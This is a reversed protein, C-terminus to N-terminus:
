TLVGLRNFANMVEQEINGAGGTTNITVNINGFNRNSTNVNSITQLHNTDLKDRFSNRLNDLTSNDPNVVKTMEAEVHFANKRVGEAIGKPLWQGIEDEYLRSPSRILGAAKGAIQGALVVRGVAASVLFLGDIVGKAIGASLNFGISHFDGETKARTEADTVVNGVADVVWPKGENVGDKARSMNDRFATNFKERSDLVKKESDTMTTGISNKIDTGGTDAEKTMDTMGIDTNKVMSDFVAKQEPPLTELFTAWKDWDEQNIGMKAREAEIKKRLTEDGDLYARHGAETLADYKAMTDANHKGTATAYDNLGQKYIGMQENTATTLIDKKQLEFEEQTLIGADLSKQLADLKLGGAAAIQTIEEEDATERLAKYDLFAKSDFALKENKFSELMFREKAQSDTLQKDAIRRMALLHAQYDAIEQPYLFDRNEDVAKKKIANIADQHYKMNDQENKGNVLVANLIEKEREETLTKSNDYYGSLTSYMLDTKEQVTTSLGTYLGDSKAFFAELGGIDMGLKQKQLMTNLETYNNAFETLGKKSIDDFQTKMGGMRATMSELNKSFAGMPAKTSNITANFAMVALTIAGITVALGLLLPNAMLTAGVASIGKSMLSFASGAVRSVNGLTSVVSDLVSLTKVAVVIGIISKTMTSADKTFIQVAGSFGKAILDFWNISMFTKVIIDVVNSAVKVLEGFLKMWNVSGLVSGIADVMKKVDISSLLKNIGELSSILNDSFSKALNQVDKIMKDFGIETMKSALYGLGVVLASVAITVVGMPLAVFPIIKAVLGFASALGGLNPALKTIVASFGGFIGSVFAVPTALLSITGGLLKLGIGATTVTILAKGIGLLGDLITEWDSDQINVLYQGLEMLAKTLPMIRPAISEGLRLLFKNWTSTIVKIQNPLSFGLTRQFDEPVGLKAMQEAFYKFRIQSQEGRDMAKWMKTAEKKSEALGESILYAEMSAVHMSIGFRTMMAKTQGTFIGSIAPILDEEAVNYFSGADRTLAVLQETMGQASEESIDQAKAMSYYASSTDLLEQKSYYLTQNVDELRGQFVSAVTPDGVLENFKNQAEELNSYAELASQLQNKLVTGFVTTAIGGAITLKNGFNSTSSGLGEIMTNTSSFSENFGKSFDNGITQLQGRLSNISASDLSMKARIDVEEADLRAIEANVKALSAENMELRTQIQNERSLKNTIKKTDAELQDTKAQLKLETRAIKTKFNDIEKDVLDIAKQPQKTDIMMKKTKELEDLQAKLGVLVKNSMNDIEIKVRNKKKTLTEVDASIQKITTKDGQVKIDLVTKKRTLKDSEKSIKDLENGAKTLSDYKAQITTNFILNAM